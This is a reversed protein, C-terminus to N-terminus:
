GPSSLKSATVLHKIRTKVETPLFHWYPSTALEQFEQLKEAPSLSQWRSNPRQRATLHQPTSNM